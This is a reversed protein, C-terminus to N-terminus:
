SLSPREPKRALFAAHTRKAGEAPEHVLRATLPLGARTLLEAIRDPPLLHSEYSVTHGGYAQAPRLLQDDGVHGALM